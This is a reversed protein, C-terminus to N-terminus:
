ETCVPQTSTALQCHRSVSRPASRHNVLRVSGDDAFGLVTMHDEGVGLTELRFHVLGVLLYM